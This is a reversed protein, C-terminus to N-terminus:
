ASKKQPIITILARLAKNVAESDPFYALVDPDLLVTGPIPTYTETVITGDPQRIRILHGAQYPAAYKGRVGDTFDYEPQMADDSPQAHHQPKNSM